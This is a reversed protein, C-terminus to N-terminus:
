GVTPEEERATIIIYWTQPIDGGTLGLGSEQTVVVMDFANSNSWRRCVRM